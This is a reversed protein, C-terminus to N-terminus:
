REEDSVLDEEDDYEDYPENNAVPPKANIKSAQKEVEDSKELAIRKLEQQEQKSLKKEGKKRRMRNILKVAGIASGALVVAPVAVQAIPNSAIWGLGQQAINKAWSVGSSLLGALKGVIPGGYQKVKDWLGKLFSSKAGDEMLFDYSYDEFLLPSKIKAVENLVPANGEMYEFIPAAGVGFVKAYIYKTEEGFVKYDKAFSKLLTTMTYNKWFNQGVYEFSEALIKGKLNLSEAFPDYREHRRQSLRRHAEEREADTAVPEVYDDDDEDDEPKVPTEYKKGIKKYRQKIKELKEPTDPPLTAKGALTYELARLMTNLAEAHNEHDDREEETKAANMRAIVEDRLKTVKSRLKKANSKASVSTVVQGSPDLSGKKKVRERPKIDPDGAVVGKYAVKFKEWDDKTIQEVKEKSGKFGKAFAGVILKNVTADAKPPIKYGAVAQNSIYKDAAEAYKGQLILDLIENDFHQQAMEVVYDLGTNRVIKSKLTNSKSSVSENTTQEIEGANKRIENLFDNM